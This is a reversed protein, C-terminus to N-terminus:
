RWCEEVTGGTSDVGKVGLNDLTLVSCRLLTDSVSGNFDRIVSIVYGTCRNLIDAPDCNAPTVSVEAHGKSTTSVNTGLNLGEEGILDSTYSLNESFFQEQRMVIMSAYVTLESRNGREMVSQYSPFVVAALIGIIAVVVMLEILSFGENGKLTSYNQM